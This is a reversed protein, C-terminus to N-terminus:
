NSLEIAFFINNAGPLVYFIKDPKPQKSNTMIPINKDLM